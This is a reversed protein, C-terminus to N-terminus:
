LHERVLQSCSIMNQYQAGAKLRAEAQQRRHESLARMLSALLPLTRRSRSTKPEDFYWGGGKRWLVTRRVMVSSNEFNIDKWQLGLYEEPRMGTVLAFTFLVGFRDQQAADLFHKVEEPSLAQM